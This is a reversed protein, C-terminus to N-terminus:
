DLGSPPTHPSPSSARSAHSKRTNGNDCSHIEVAKHHEQYDPLNSGPHSNSMGHFLGIQNERCISATIFQSFLSNSLRSTLSQCAMILTPTISFPTRRQERFIKVKLVQYSGFKLKVYIIKAMYNLYKILFLLYIRIHTILPLSIKIQSKINM